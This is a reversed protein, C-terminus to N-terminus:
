QYHSLLLIYVAFAENHQLLVSVAGNNAFILESRLKQRELSTKTVISFM